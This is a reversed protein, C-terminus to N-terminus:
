KRTTILRGNLSTKNKYEEMEKDTVYIDDKYNEPSLKKLVDFWYKIKNIYKRILFSAAKYGTYMPVRMNAIAYEENDINIEAMEKQYKSKLYM